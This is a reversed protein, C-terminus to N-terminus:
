SVIVVSPGQGCVDVGGAFGHLTEEKQKFGGDSRQVHQSRQTRGLNGSIGVASAVGSVFTAQPAAASVITGGGVNSSFVHVSLIKIDALCAM